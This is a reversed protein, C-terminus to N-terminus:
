FLLIVAGRVEIEEDADMHKSYLRHGSTKGSFMSSLDADTETFGLRKIRMATKGSAIAFLTGARTCRIKQTQEKTSRRVFSRKQLEDPVFQLTVKSNSYLKTGRTLKAVTGGSLIKFNGKVRASSRKIGSSVAFGSAIERDSLARAYICIEDMTGEFPSGRYTAGGILLPFSDTGPSVQTVVESEIPKGDIFITREKKAHDYRCALHFWAHQPLSGKPRYQTTSKSMGFSVGHKGTMIFMRASKAEANSTKSLVYARGGTSKDKLWLMVTFSTNDFKPSSVAAIYGKRNFKAGGGVRGYATWTTDKHKGHMRKGSKDTVKGKEDKDFGYHLILGRRLNSPLRLATSTASTAVNPANFDPEALVSLDVQKKVKDIEASVFLADNDKGSTTLSKQIRTLQTIYSRTLKAIQKQKVLMMVSPLGKYEEQLKRLAAPTEVLVKDSIEKEQKFRTIEQKVATVGQVDNRRQLAKGLSVLKKHYGRPISELAQLYQKEIKQVRAQYISQVKDMKSDTDAAFTVIALSATTILAICFTKNMRYWRRPKPNIATSAQICGGDGLCSSKDGGGIMADYYGRMAVWM